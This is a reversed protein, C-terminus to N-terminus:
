SAWSVNQKLFNLEQVIAVIMGVPAKGKWSSDTYPDSIGAYCGMVHYFVTVNLVVVTDVEVGAAVIDIQSLTVNVPIASSQSPPYSHIKTSVTTAVQYVNVISGNSAVMSHPSTSHVNLKLIFRVVVIYCYRIRIEVFIWSMAWTLM